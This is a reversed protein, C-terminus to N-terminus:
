AKSVRYCVEGDCVWEEESSDDNDVNVSKKAQEREELVCMPHLDYYCEACHYSWGNGEEECEDCTYLLRRTLVLEHVEHLRHKMKKPWEKAIEELQEEIEKMRDETFPYAEAGHVMILEKADKAVTQGTPGIAIATPISYVKFKKKLAKKREDGFPIALWPMTLFLEDYSAKDHDSSVFIIEFGEDKAKIENYTKILKPMFARCPACWEASFYLVINNGVLQDSVSIKTGDNKIVFDLDGLVLLSELTQAGLKAKEIVALEELRTPTFPFAHIGHNEVVEAANFNLTKGDPSIIVLTPLNTVNFYRALKDRTKSGYPLALWPMIDFDEKYLEEDEDDLSVLVVEFSEGRGKLRNYVDILLPSFELCSNYSSMSFYLGVTKGELESVPVKKGDNSVLFDRTRSVLISRLSQQKKAEEEQEQLELIREQTFPYGEIGYKDIIDIGDNYLVNGNPDLIALHPLGRVKFLEDLDDRKESDSFPFSLWPLQSFYKNFSDEDDDEAVLIIELKGQPSLENYLEILNPTFHRSPGCWSAAFYLGITKGKLNSIKVQDGNSRILYDRGASSLISQIDHRRVTGSGIKEAEEGM